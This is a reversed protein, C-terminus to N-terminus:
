RCSQNQLRRKTKWHCQATSHDASNQRVSATAAADSRDRSHYPKCGVLDAVAHTVTIPTLRIFSKMFVEKRKLSHNYCITSSHNVRLNPHLM